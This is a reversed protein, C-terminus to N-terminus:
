MKTFSVFFCILKFSIISYKQQQVNLIKEAFLEENDEINIM